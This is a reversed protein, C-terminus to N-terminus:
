RCEPWSGEARMEQGEKAAESGEWQESPRPCAPHARLGRVKKLDESQHGRM